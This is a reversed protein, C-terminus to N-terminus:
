SEILLAQRIEKYKEILHPTIESIDKNGLINKLHNTYICDNEYSIKNIKSYKLYEDVLRFLTMYKKDEILNYRGQLLNAKFIAEAKEADKKCTAEPVAKHYRKGRIMFAFYWKANSKKQYASM